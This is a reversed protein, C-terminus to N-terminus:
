VDRVADLLAQGSQEISIILSSYTTQPDAFGKVAGALQM